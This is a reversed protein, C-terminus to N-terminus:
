RNENLLEMYLIEKKNLIEKKIEKFNFDKYLKIAKPNDTYVEARLKQINLSEFAYTCILQLLIKGYGRIEPNTYIGLEADTKTINIFDIVGLYQENEKVLFYRKSTNNHLSEIFSFHEQKTINETNHMVQQISPHNRMKLVIEKENLTLNTFNILKTM